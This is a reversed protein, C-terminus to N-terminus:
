FGPFVINGTLERFIPDRDLAEAEEFSRTDNWLISPRMVGGASDILTAGHMQGSLGIGRVAAIEIPHSHRLAGVVDEAARLWDAPEQESWGEHPRSVTIDS